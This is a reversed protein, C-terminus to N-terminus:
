IWDVGIITCPYACMGKIWTYNSYAFTAYLQIIHLFIKM